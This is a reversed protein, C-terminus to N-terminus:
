PRLDYFRLGLGVKEARRQAEARVAEVAQTPEGTHSFLRREDDGDKLIVDLNKAVVQEVGLSHALEIFAPLEHYNEQEGTMMVYVAMMRPKKSALRQKLDRLAAIHGMVKEFHAGQRIREYLEPTAADISFSIWDLGLTILQESVEPVLRTGNTSFGVECGAKKAAQVMDVLRPHKFPEGGGTFDVSVAQQFFPVIREFTDWSMSANQPRIESWPCMVCDLSCELSPEVQILQFAPRSSRRSPKYFIRSIKEFM